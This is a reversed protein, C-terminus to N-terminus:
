LPDIFKNGMVVFGNICNGTRTLVDKARFFDLSFGNELLLFVLEKETFHHAVFEPKGTAPDWALFSGEEGTVPFDRLYRERYLDLHWSQGFESIYLHGGPKLVRFAERVARARTEPDLVTTLFAQM